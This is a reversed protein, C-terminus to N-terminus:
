KKRKLIRVIGRRADVEIEDGDKIVQTAIKTGIVCPKKLERAVIAAHCIIGGTDTVFAAAKKMASILDPNTASSVLIEGIKLKPVDEKTLIIKARGRVLGAYAVSGKLEKVAVSKVPKHGEVKTIIKQAVSGENVKIQGRSVTYCCLVVRQKARKQYIIKKHNLLADAVETRTLYRIEERSVGLRDALEFIIKDMAVYSKQYIGKRYDKIFMLESSVAFLYTLDRSLKLRSRLRAKARKISSFHRTIKMIQERPAGNKLDAVLTKFLYGFSMVPGAYSYTLWGFKNLHRNILGDAPTLLEKFRTLKGRSIAALIERGNKETKIKELLKLRELTEGQVESMKESTSLLSYYDAVQALQNKQRLFQTFKAMLYDSLFPEFIGDLIPPVWGWIRLVGLKQEYEAYIKLLEWDSKLEPNLAGLKRCFKMLDSSYYYIKTIVQRYFDPKKIIQELIWRGLADTSRREYWINTIGGKIYLFVKKITLGDALKGIDKTAIVDSIYWPYITIGQRDFSKQLSM